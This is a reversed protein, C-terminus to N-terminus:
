DNVAKLEPKGTQVIVGHKALIKRGLEGQEKIFTAILEWQEDPNKKEGQHILQEISQLDPLLKNIAAKLAQVQTQSGKIEGKGIKNLTALLVGLEAALHGRANEIQRRTLRPEVKPRTM